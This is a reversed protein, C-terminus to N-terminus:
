QNSNLRECIVSANEKIRNGSISVEPDLHIKGRFINPTTYFSWQFLKQDSDSILIPNDSHRSNYDMIFFYFLRGLLMGKPAKAKFVTRSEASQKRIEFNVIIPEAMENDSPDSLTGPPPFNWTKYISGPIDIFYNFAIVVFVPAIFFFAPSFYVWPFPDHFYIQYSLTILGYAFFCSALTFLIKGLNRNELPVIKEFLWAHLIGIILAWALAALFVPLSLSTFEALGLLSIMGTLIGTIILYAMLKMKNKGADKVKALYIGFLVAFLVFLVSFLITVNSIM